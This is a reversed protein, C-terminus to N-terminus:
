RVAGDRLRSSLAPIVIAAAVVHTLILTAKTAVDAPLMLDPVFSLATLVVTIKGFLVRPRRSRRGVTRAIVVGVATFLLTLQAFGLIPIAEGPATELSVGAAHALSAVAVTGAAAAVGAVAGTRWLSSPTGVAPTTATTTIAATM